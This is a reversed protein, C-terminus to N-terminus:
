LCAFCLAARGSGAGGVGFVFIIDTGPISGLSWMFDDNPLPNSLSFITRKADQFGVQFARTTFIYHLHLYVVLGYILFFYIKITQKIAFFYTWPRFTVNGM